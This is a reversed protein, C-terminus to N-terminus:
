GAFEMRLLETHEGRKPVPGLPSEQGSIRVPNGFV